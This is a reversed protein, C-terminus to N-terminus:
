IELFPCFAPNISVLVSDDKLGKALQRLKKMDYFIDYIYTIKLESDRERCVGLFAFWLLIEIVKDQEISINSNQIFEKLKGVSFIKETDIFYYLIEEAEPFVDRIEYGVESDIDASYTNLAKLIDEEEIRQRRLNVAYSRAYNIISLLNRPRMLSREIIMDATNEGNTHTTCIKEWADEFLIEETFTNNNNNIIRKRLFEKLLDRDTWDLSVKSEKGRDSSEEVLLEFVDNRVFIVPHFEIDKKNFYKELKRTAELLAKLITIDTVTVGRTPWGKDINDFLIWVQKKQKLYELLAERLKPIDHKYILQTVENTRLYQIKDEGYQSKFDDSIKQVLQYMRESFDIDVDVDKDGYIDALQQYLSYMKQDRTHFIKDTLLIKHCCELLLLYEWFATAIHEKVADELLDLVLHKLRKLQHGEPRLDLIINKRTRRLENRIHIFLATKGAGKRGVVLRANGCLTQASEDTDVYYQDLTSMENEAAPAGLELRELLLQPRRLIEKGAFDQLEDMVKPALINIQKDIDRLDAYTTILGKYDQSTSEGNEQLLLLIKELGYALGSLFAARYNNHVHDALKKSLLTVVIAVSKQVENLAVYASIRSQESPDFSRFRIKSKKLKSLIRTSVDTKYLTDLMYIPASKDILNPAQYIEKIEQVEEILLALSKSDKYEKCDIEDFLGIESMERSDLNKSEDFVLLIKKGKSLCYGFEFILNFNLKTIDIIISDSNEIQILSENTLFNGSVESQECRSLNFESSQSKVLEIATNITQNSQILDYSCLILISIM